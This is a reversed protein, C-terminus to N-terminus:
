FNGGVAGDAKAYCVDGKEKSDKVSLSELIYQYATWPLDYMCVWCVGSNILEAERKRVFFSNPM